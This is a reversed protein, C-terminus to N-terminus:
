RIDKSREQDTKRNCSNRTALQIYCLCFFSLVFINTWAYTLIIFTNITYCNFNKIGIVKKVTFISVKEWQTARTRIDYYYTRGTAPDIAKNWYCRAQLEALTPSVPTTMAEMTTTSKNHYESGNSNNYNMHSMGNYDIDGNMHNPTTSDMSNIKSEYRLSNTQQHDHNNHNNRININGRSTTKSGACPATSSSRNHHHNNNYISHPDFHYNKCYHNLFLRRRM